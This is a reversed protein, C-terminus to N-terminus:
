RASWEQGAAQKFVLPRRQVCVATPASSLQAVTAHIADARGWNGWDLGSKCLSDDAAAVARSARLCPLIRAQAESSPLQQVSSGGGNNGLLGIRLARALPPAISFISPPYPPHPPCGPRRDMVKVGSGLDRFEWVAFGVEACRISPACIQAYSWFSAQRKWDWRADFRAPTQLMSKQSPIHLPVCALAVVVLKLIRHPIFLVM